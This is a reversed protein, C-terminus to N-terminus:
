ISLTFGTCISFIFHLHLKILMCVGVQLLAPYALVPCLTSTHKVLLSLHKQTHHSWGQSPGRLGLVLCIIVSFKCSPKPKTQNKHHNKQNIPKHMKHKPKNKQALPKHTNKQYNNRKTKEEQWDSVSSNSYNCGM